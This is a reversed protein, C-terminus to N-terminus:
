AASASSSACPHRDSGCRQIQRGPAQERDDTLVDLGPRWSRQTELAEAAQMVAANQPQLAVILVDYSCGLPLSSVIGNEDHGAEVAAALIGTWRRDRLLGHDALPIVAGKDDLYSAGMAKSYKTGLKFVHGIEIGQKVIMTEGCRPCPDGADPM